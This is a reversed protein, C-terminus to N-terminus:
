AVKQKSAELRAVKKKALDIWSERVDADLLPLADLLVKEDDSLHRGALRDGNGTKLWFADIGFIHALEPIYPSEIRNGTELMSVFSQGMDPHVLKALEEQNLGLRKRESKIRQALTKM